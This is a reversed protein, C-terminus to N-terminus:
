REAEVRMNKGDSIVQITSNKDTFFVQSGTEHLLTLMSQSFHTLQEHFSLITVQPSLTKIIPQSLSFVSTRQSIQLINVQSFPWTHSADELGSTNDCSFVAKLRGYTLLTVLCAQQPNEKLYNESPGIFQLRLGTTFQLNTGALVATPLLKSHVYAHASKKGEGPLSFLYEVSYQDVLSAISASNGGYDAVILANLTHLWFPAYELLCSHMSMDATNDLLMLKNNPTKIIVASGQQTNCFVLHLKNDYFSFYEKIIFFCIACLVIVMAFIFSRM